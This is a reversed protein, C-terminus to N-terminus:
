IQLELVVDFKKASIYVEGEKKVLYDEIMRYVTRVNVGLAKAAETKTEYKNLSKVLLRKTHYPIHLIEEAM